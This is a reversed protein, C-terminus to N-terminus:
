NLYVINNKKYILNNGVIIDGTVNGIPLAVSHKGNLTRVYVSNEILNAEYDQGNLHPPLTFQRSYGDTSSQALNIEDQVTKAVENVAVSLAEYQSDAIKNQVSYLFGVFLFLVAMVLIIFEIASQGKRNNFNFFENIM